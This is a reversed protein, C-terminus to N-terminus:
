KVALEALKDMQSEAKAAVKEGIMKVWMMSSMGTISITTTMELDGDVEKMEHKGFMKAGPLYLCDTFSVNETAEEITLKVEPGAKPKLKFTGGKEFSDNLKAYELDENWDTWSDIDAWRKWIQEKSVGSFRKKFKEEWM